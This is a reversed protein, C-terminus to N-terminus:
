RSEEYIHKLPLWIIWISGEKALDKYTSYTYMRPVVFKGSLIHISIFIIMIMMRMTMMLM